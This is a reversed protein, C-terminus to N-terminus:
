EFGVEFNILGDGIKFLKLVTKSLSHNLESEEVKYIRILPLSNKFINDLISELDKHMEMSISPMEFKIIRPDGLYLGGNAPRYELFVGVQAHGQKLPQDPINADVPIMLVLEKKGKSLMVDPLNITIRAFATYERIPFHQVM